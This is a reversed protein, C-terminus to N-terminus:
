HMNCPVWRYTYINVSANVLDENGLRMMVHLVVRKHLILSNFGLRIDGSKCDALLVHQAWIYKGDYGATIVFRFQLPGSPVRSTDWVAGYNHSM